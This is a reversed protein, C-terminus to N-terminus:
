ANTGTAIGQGPCSMYPKQAATQGTGPTATSGRYFGQAWADWSTSVPPDVRTLPPPGGDAGLGERYLTVRVGRFKPAWPQEIMQSHDHFPRTAAHTTHGHIGGNEGVQKTAATTGGATSNTVANPVSVCFNTASTPLAPNCAAYPAVGFEIWNGHSTLG